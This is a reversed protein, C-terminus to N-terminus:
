YTHREHTILRDITVASSKLGWPPASNREILSQIRFLICYSQDWWALIYSFTPKLTQFFGDVRNYVRHIQMRRFTIYPASHTQHSKPLQMELPLCVQSFPLHFLLEFSTESLFQLVKLTQCILFKNGNM